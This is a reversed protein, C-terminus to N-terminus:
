NHLLYFISWGVATWISLWFTGDIVKEGERVDSPERLYAAYKILIMILMVSVVIALALIIAAVFKM